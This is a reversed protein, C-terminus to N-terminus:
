ANKKPLLRTKVTGDEAIFSVMLSAGVATTRNWSGHQASFIASQYKEPFQSGYYFMLGLDAAHAITQSVPMTVEVPVEEDKYENTRTDGGGYWQHGFHLGIATMHNIEGPPIDDGMGDVQNDTFWLNGTKPDFDQGVSNRVGRAIAERGTGDQKMRIIGSIGTDLYKQIKDPPTVNHPQGLSIYLMGDPGVDCVRASHNFSEEDVPILEGQKVVQGVAVDPTFLVSCSINFSDEDCSRGSNTRFIKVTPPDSLNDLFSQDLM